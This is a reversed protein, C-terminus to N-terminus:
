PTSNSYALNEKQSLYYTAALNILFGSGLIALAKVPAHDEFFHSMVGVGGPGIAESLCWVMGMLFASVLGPQNPELRTGLAIALPQMTYLGAGLVFLTILTLIISIGGWFIFIYFAIFAATSTYLMVQRASYKDALYGGPIMMLSGGLVFCLHGGGYCIWNTHGLTKLVDPLIFILGWLISQNALTAIYLLRLEKRKFFVFADKFATKKATPSLPVTRPFAYLFMWVSLILTPIILWITHGKLSLYVQMFIIQSFAMGLSGGSVFITMFLGRREPLLSSTLSAATPHFAGSGICTLLYLGFFGWESSSYPLLASSTAILIGFILIKQYHGRDSLAGFFLQSGEGILAGVAVILGARALDIQIFSKYVPWIGIMMDVLFHACWLLLLTLYISYRSLKHTFLM